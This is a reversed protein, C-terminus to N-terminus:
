SGQEYGGTWQLIDFVSNKMVTDRFELYTEYHTKIQSFFHQDSIVEALSPPFDNKYFWSSSISNGRYNVHLNNTRQTAGTCYIDFAAFRPSFFCFTECAGSKVELLDYSVGWHKLYTAATKPFKTFIKSFSNGTEKLATFLVFEVEMMPYPIQNASIALHEGAYDDGTFILDLLGENMMECLENARVLFIEHEDLTYYLTAPHYEAQPIVRAKLCQAVAGVHLLSSRNPIGIRLKKM